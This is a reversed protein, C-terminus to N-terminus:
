LWIVLLALPVLQAAVTVSRNVQVEERESVTAAEIPRTSELLTPTPESPEPEQPLIDTYLPEVKESQPLTVYLPLLPPTILKLLVLLWLAHRASPRRCFRTVVAVIAALLTALIANSLALYLLSQM